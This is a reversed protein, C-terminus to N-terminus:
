GLSFFTRLLVFFATFMVGAHTSGRAGIHFAYMCCDLFAIDFEGFSGVGFGNRYQITRRVFASNQVFVLRRAVLASQVGLNLGHRGLSTRTMNLAINPNQGPRKFGLGRLVLISEIGPEIGPKKPQRGRRHGGIAVLSKSLSYPIKIGRNDLMGAGM